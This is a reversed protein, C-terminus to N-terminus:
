ARLSNVTNTLGTIRSPTARLQFGVAPQPTELFYESLSHGYEFLGGPNRMVDVVLGDTNAELFATNPTM